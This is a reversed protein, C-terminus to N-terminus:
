NNMCSIRPLQENDAGRSCSQCRSGDYARYPLAETRPKDTLDNRTRRLAGHPGGSAMQDHFGTPHLLKPPPAGPYAQHHCDDGTIARSDNFVVLKSVLLSAALLM